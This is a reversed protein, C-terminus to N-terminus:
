RSCRSDAGRAVKQPCLIPCRWVVNMMCKSYRMEPYEPSNPRAFCYHAFERARESARSDSREPIASLTDPGRPGFFNAWSTLGPSGTALPRLGPVPRSHSKREQRPRRSPALGGPQRSRSRETTRRALSRCPKRQPCDDATRVPGLVRPFHTRPHHNGSGSVAREYLDSIGKVCYDM